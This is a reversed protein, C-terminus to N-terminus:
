RSGIVTVVKSRGVVLAGNNILFRFEYDGPESPATLNLSSGAYWVEGTWVRTGIPDGLRYLGIVDPGSDWYNDRPNSWSVTLAGGAAVSSPTASVDVGLFTFGNPLKFTRGDDLIVVVDVTGPQHAPVMVIPGFSAVDITGGPVGGFEVRLGGTLNTGSLSVTEGPFAADPYLRNVTVQAFRFGYKLRAEDGGGNIVVVDVALETSPPTTVRIETPTVSLVTAAQDGFLVRVQGRFGIGTLRVETGGLPSGFNPKASQVSLSTPSPFPNNPNCSAATGATAALFLIVARFALSKTV